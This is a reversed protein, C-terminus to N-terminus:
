DMQSLQRGAASMVEEERVEAGAAQARYYLTAPRREAGPFRAARRRKLFCSSNPGGRPDM